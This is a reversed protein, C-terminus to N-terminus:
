AERVTNRFLEAKEFEVEVSDGDDMFLPPNRTFGVGSPTGSAIIDGPELTM